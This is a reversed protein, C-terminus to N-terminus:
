HRFKRVVLFLLSAACIVLLGARLYVATSVSVGIGTALAIYAALCLPCKPLLVLIMSPTGWEVVRRTLSLM